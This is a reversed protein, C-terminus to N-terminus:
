ALFNKIKQKDQQNQLNAAPKPPAPRAFGPAGFKTKKVGAETGDGRGYLAKLM